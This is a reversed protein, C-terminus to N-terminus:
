APGPGLWDILETEKPVRGVSKLTGDVVLGPIAYVGLALVADFDMVREVTCNLGHNQITQKILTHAEDCIQCSPGVILVLSM